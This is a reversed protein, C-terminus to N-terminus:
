ALRRLLATALAAVLGYTLHAGWRHLHQTLPYRGPGPALGLLSVAGEDGFLWLGTGFAPGALAAPAGSGESLAGFVGGQLTGYGFHVAYSLLSKAEDSEPPRGAIRAYAIRGMAATSTEEATHHRGVLSIDDLPHSGGERTRARPDEGVLATAVRWYGGMAATGTGGGLLGLVFGRWPNRRPDHRRM